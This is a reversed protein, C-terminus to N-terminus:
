KRVYAHKLEELLKTGRAGVTFETNRRDKKDWRQLLLKKAVAAKLYKHATANSMFKNDQALELVRTTSMSGLNNVMGIIYEENVNIGYKDRIPNTEFTNM